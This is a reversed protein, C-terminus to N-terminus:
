FLNDLINIITDYIVIPLIPIFLTTWMIFDEHGDFSMKPVLIIMLTWVIFTIIPWIINLAPVPIYIICMPIMIAIFLSLFLYWFGYTVWIGIILILYIALAFQIFKM